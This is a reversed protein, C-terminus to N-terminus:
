KFYSFDHESIPKEKTSKEIKKVEKAAARVISIVEHKPKKNLVEYDYYTGFLHSLMHYNAAEDGNIYITYYSYHSNYKHVHIGVNFERNKYIVKVESFKLGDKYAKNQFVIYKYIRDISKRVRYKQYRSDDSVFLHIVHFWFIWILGCHVYPNM